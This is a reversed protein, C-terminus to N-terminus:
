ARASGPTPDASRRWEMFLRPPEIRLLRFGLREYFRRAPNKEYVSLGLPVDRRAAEDMAMRMVVTGIGANQAEALLAIGSVFDYEPETRVAIYGVPRGDHEIIRMRDRGFVEESRRRQDAEDWTGWTAVVLDRFAELRVRVFLARDSEVAPRLTIQIRAWGERAVLAEVRARVEDRIERVVELSRGKPDPLPWDERALGPVVPCAEGCGMTVLLAAGRALDETLLRPRTSALDMGVEAMARVVAPHVRDGPETGASLARARTPDALAAFWAAAM